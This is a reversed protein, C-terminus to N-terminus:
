TPTDLFRVTGKALCKRARSPRAIPTPAARAKAPQPPQQARHGAARIRDAYQTMWDIKEQALDERRATLMAHAFGLAYGAMQASITDATQDVHDRVYAWDEDLQANGTTVHAPTDSNPM